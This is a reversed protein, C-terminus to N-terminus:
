RAAIALAATMMRYLDTNLVYAPMQESGPGLATCEVYDSTHNPSMFAVGYHNALISGLLSTWGNQAAFPDIQNGRLKATMMQKDNDSLDIGRHQAIAAAVRDVLDPGRGEEAASQLISELSVRAALLRELGVDQRRGELTMGPNANGHDSTIIVLTDDRGDCFDAVVQITRDFEIQEALMAGADNAHAAHDVRGGEVQLVFGHEAAALRDLAARTMTELSPQTDPREIVYDIHDTAFLGLLPRELTAPAAALADKTTVLTAPRMNLTTDTFYRRGGGLVVDVARQQIQEAIPGEMARDPVNAIFGAPTAHTVRTTTVLGTAKAHARATVLIPEPERGDPTINVAGNNIRHGIGWAGAAASSDTVLSDAAATDQLARRVGPRDWLRMWASREGTHRRLAIDALALTGHSMGDSCMLIANRAATPQSSGRTRIRADRSRRLAPRALAAPAAAAAMAAAGAFLAHRRSYRSRDPM